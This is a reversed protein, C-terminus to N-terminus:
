KKYIIFSVGGAVENKVDLKMDFFDLTKKVISMGLGFQGKSGKEYAKFLGNLFQEEIPEGDNYIILKDNKLTIKILTKAYRKANDIINDIVTYYNESYGLFYVDDLDLLINVDTQFKYTNVINIIIEKLNIEEFEKDKSLYELRNYQLLKNVKRKLIEAQAIIIEGASEIEIGDEIAEAYSKIVAIPTKFDHSVNQLMEQKISENNQIEKRMFEISYSLQAIEDFGDDLYVKNYNNASLTDVHKQIKHIRSVFGRSWLAIAIIAISFVSSAIFLVQLSVTKNLQNVYLSDTFFLIFDNRVTTKYSCYIKTNNESTLIFSESYGPKLFDYIINEDMETLFESINESKNTIIVKNFEIRGQVYGVKMLSDDINGILGNDEVRASSIYFQLRNFTEQEYVNRLKSGILFSFLICATMIIVFFIILIQSSLKVRKM